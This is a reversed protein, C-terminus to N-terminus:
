LFDSIFRINFVHLYTFACLTFTYHMNFIVVANLRLHMLYDRFCFDAIFLILFDVASFLTCRPEKFAIPDTVTILTCRFLNM